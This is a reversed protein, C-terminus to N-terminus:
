EFTDLKLQSINGILKMKNHNLKILMDEETLDTYGSQIVGNYYLMSYTNSLYDGTGVMIWCTEKNGNSDVWIQGPELKMYEEFIPKDNYKLGAFNNFFSDRIVKEVSTFYPLYKYTNWESKEFSQLAYGDVNKVIRWVQQCYGDFTFLGGLEPLNIAKYNKMTEKEKKDEIEFCPKNNYSVLEEDLCDRLLQEVVCGKYGEVRVLHLTEWYGFVYGKRYTYSQLKYIDDEKTVKYLSKRYFFESDLPPINVAKYETM